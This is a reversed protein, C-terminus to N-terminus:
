EASREGLGWGRDGGAPAFIFRGRNLIGKPDFQDKIAQMVPHTPRPLGWVAERSLAAGEPQRLVVLSGGSRALAPRLRQSLVAQAEDPKLDLRAQIVGGGAHALVSAGPDIELVSRVADVVCGPLVHVQVVLRAARRVTPRADRGDESLACESRRSAPGVAEVTEVAKDEQTGAPFEALRDWVPDARLGRLTVTAVAGARRWEEQLQHLMWEVEAPTGELGVVLRVSRSDSLPGLLSDDKWASGAVLEIASPQVKTHVLGALLNEAADFGSVDCALLASTEPLPKVMLTVQTIVGLTGLSGTLLRCLDYGAANKVVRGGASFCTGLGDVASLGIVYDRITGWRYHRPGIPSAAVIGGVTAQEPHPVDVSLRQGEGALRKALAAITVGAEVTITLDRAPYDVVRNLGALSLGLGPETPRVGYGLNTGGGIPYLPAGDRHARQVLEAVAAPDGPQAVEVLPLPAYAHNM